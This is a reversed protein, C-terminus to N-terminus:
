KCISKIFTTKGAGLTGKFNFVRVKKNDEIFQKAVEDIDQLSNIIYEKQM